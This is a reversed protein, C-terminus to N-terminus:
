HIIIVIIIIIIIIIVQEDDKMTRNFPAESMRKRVEKTFNSYEATSPVYLSIDLLGEYAACAIADETANGSSRCSDLLVEYSIFAYGAGTLGMKHAALMLRRVTGGYGGLVFM